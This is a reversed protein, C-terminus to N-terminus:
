MNRPLHPVCLSDLYWVSLNNNHCLFLSTLHSVLRTQSAHGCTAAEANGSVNLNAPIPIPWSIKLLAELLCGCTQLVYKIATLPAWSEHVIDRNFFQKMIYRCKESFQFRFWKEHCYTHMVNNTCINDTKNCPFQGLSYPKNCNLSPHQNLWTLPHTSTQAVLFSM